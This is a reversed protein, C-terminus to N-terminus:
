AFAPEEVDLTAPPSNPLSELIRVDRIQGILTPAGEPALRAGADVHVPQLWPSRGVIQGPKRGAGAFLVSMRRGVAARNFSKQQ